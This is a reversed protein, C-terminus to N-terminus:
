RGLSLIAQFHAEIFSHIEEDSKGEKSLKRTVCDIFVSAMMPRYGKGAERLVGFQALEPLFVVGDDGVNLMIAYGYREFLTARLPGDEVVDDLYVSVLTGRIGANQCRVAADRLEWKTNLAHADFSDSSTM